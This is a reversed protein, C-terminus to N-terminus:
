DVYFYDQIECDCALAFSPFFHHLSLSTDRPLAHALFLSPTLIFDPSPVYFLVLQVTGQAIRGWM